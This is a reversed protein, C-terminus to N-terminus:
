LCRKLIRATHPYISFYTNTEGSMLDIADIDYYAIENSNNVLVYISDGRRFALQGNDSYIEKFKGEAFDKNENRIKGLKVYFDHLDSNINHWPFTKRCFPDKYGEMGAEDGYYICPVGPLTFQLVAAMKLRKIADLYRQNDMKFNATEVRDMRHYNINGCVSLIRETDHTGLINMLSDLVEKPYNNIISRITNRLNYLDGFCVYDIIARRFPYNMVSDLENGDFYHRRYGYAEKNSADEWVEGILIARPNAKKVAKSIREVFKSNLEDVVDLRYGSAGLKIWKPIVEDCIFDVFSSNQNISPLTDFGWWSHYKNPYEIFRYWDYYKSDRSQYAGVEDFYGDRNFYRSNSGTHNFVGDIIIGIKRKKAEMCLNSFDEETGLMPDLTLYDATDYRHNSFALSIPNLYIAKVGLEKIYDLKAIIGKINGGFYDNNLIRGHVPLYAPHEDWNKHMYGNKHCYDDKEFSYFRDPMIQYMVGGKFWNLNKKFGNHISLQFSYTVEDTLIADMNIDCCVFHTGYCDDFKFYYWYIDAEELAFETKYVNFFDKKEYFLPFVKEIGKSDSKLVVCLNWINYTQQFSIRLTIKGNKIVAGQPSKNYEFFPNFFIDRM